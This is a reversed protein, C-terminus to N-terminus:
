TAPLMREVLEKYSTDPRVIELDSSMLDYVRM